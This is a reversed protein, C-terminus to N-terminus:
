QDMRDSEQRWLERIISAGSSRANSGPEPPLSTRRATDKVKEEQLVAGAAPPAFNELAREAHIANEAAQDIRKNKRIGAKSSKPLGKRQKKAEQGAERTMANIRVAKKDKRHVNEAKAELAWKEHERRFKELELFSARLRRTEENDNTAPVWEGSIQDCFWVQDASHEDYRIEIEFARSNARATYGLELLRPSCFYEKKFHIGRPTVSATAKALLANFVMKPSLSRTFGPRHDLGWQFLGIHTIASSGTSLADAPIYRLPVPENNLDLIIEVICMELEELTLAATDKGDPERRGPNKPHRGFMRYFNNGHKIDKFSSEVKGKREPCMSPMIEVVIGLEPVVGAKDSVLEGRDAALRSPLHRSPWDKSTYPLNLREFVETKDTFCNRLAKSALAWSPNNLSVAYGVIAGSWVDIVIYLTAEGVLLQRGYRSVLQVQLKTADIEFRYGPGAVGDRSRGRLLFKPKPFRARGPQRKRKGEKQELLQCIYRFQRLSPRRAHPVLIDELSRQAGPGYKVQKGKSFHQKLTLNFSEFLTHKGFLYNARAGHELQKRVEPLPKSANGDASPKRGRRATGEKQPVPMLSKKRPRGALALETMGGWLYEYYHRHITRESINCEAARNKFERGRYGSDFILRNDGLLPFMVELTQKLRDEAGSMLQARSAVLGADFEELRVIEGRSFAETVDVMLCTFPARCSTLDLRVLAVQTGDDTVGVIRVVGEFPASTLSVASLVDNVSIM